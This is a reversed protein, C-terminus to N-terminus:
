KMNSQPSIQMMNMMQKQQSSLRNMGFYLFIILVFPLLVLIWSLTKWGKKCLWNLVMTWVFAFILKVLVAM